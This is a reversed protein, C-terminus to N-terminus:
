VLAKLEAEFQRVVEPDQSLTSMALSFWVILNDIDKKRLRDPEKNLHNQILRSAFRHAAPGLYRYTIGVVEDYM